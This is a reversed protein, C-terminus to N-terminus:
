VPTAHHSAASLPLSMMLADERGEKTPYYGKRRELLKFGNTLYLTHAALNSERVELFCASANLQKCRNIVFGLMRKGAGQGRLEKSIAIDMLTVEDLVVLLIAFGIVQRNNLLVWCEYPSTTCDVFTAQSWPAYQAECHIAHAAKALAEDAQTINLQSIDLETRM